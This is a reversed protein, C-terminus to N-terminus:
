PFLILLHGDHHCHLLHLMIGMSYPLDHPLLAVISYLSWCSLTSIEKRSRSLEISSFNTRRFSFTVKATKEKQHDNKGKKGKGKADQVRVVDMPM